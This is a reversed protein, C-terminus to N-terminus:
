ADRGGDLLMALDDFASPRKDEQNTRLDQVLTSASKAGGLIRYRSTLNRKGRGTKKQRYTISIQRLDSLQKLGDQVARCSMHGRRAITEVSPDCRGTEQNHCDALVLLTLKASPKLAPTAAIIRFARNIATFSM